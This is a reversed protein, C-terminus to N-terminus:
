ASCAGSSCSDSFNIEAPVIADVVKGFKSTTPAIVNNHKNAEARKMDSINNKLAQTAPKSRIYYSGTCLGYEYGLMFVTRLYKSSNDRLYINLSQSQDIFASRLSSRRMLEKQSMEWVTKYIQQVDAPVEALGQVSGDNVIIRNKLNENWVGLDLLHRIMHNNSITFKGFQTTKTYLNSNFPEFGENNGMIQSTTVTPMYAVMLSNRIGHTQIQERLAQWDYMGSFPVSGAGGVRSQNELWMDFRLVGQSAPSSQFAGYAGREQAMAVSETLAAHYITEAVANDLREGTTSLFPVHMIALVDALGQIGIGIPRYDQANGVCEQVPYTNVDIVGDLNRALNRVKEHLLKYDMTTVDGSPTHETRLFAPLNISGLCCCAYSNASSWQVIEACLNSSKITGLNKHNSQRNIHDKFLMYPTGSERQMEIIAEQVTRAPLTRTALGEREYRAYLETFMDRAQYNHQCAENGARLLDGLISSLPEKVRKVLSNYDSNDCYGCETCMLMGDFVDSLGPADSPSFLSWNQDDKVRKYFLDPIWLAYFLDRAREDEKGNNLKLHLFEM